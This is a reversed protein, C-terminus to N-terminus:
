YGVFLHMLFMCKMFLFCKWVILISCMLCCLSTKLQCQCVKTELSTVDVDDKGAARARMFGIEIIDGRRAM